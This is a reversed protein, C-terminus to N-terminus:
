RGADAVRAAASDRCFQEWTGARQMVRRWQNIEGQLYESRRRLLKVEAALADREAEAQLIIAAADNFSAGSQVLADALEETTPRDVM